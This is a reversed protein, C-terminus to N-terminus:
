LEGRRDGRLVLLGDPLEYHVPLIYNLMCKM